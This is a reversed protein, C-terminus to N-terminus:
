ARAYAYSAYDKLKIEFHSDNNKNNYQPIRTQKELSKEQMTIRSVLTKIDGPKTLFEAINEGKYSLTGIIEARICIADHVSHVM